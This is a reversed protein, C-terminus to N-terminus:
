GPPSVNTGHNWITNRCQFISHVGWPLIQEQNASKVIGRNLFTRQDAGERVGPVSSLCLPFHPRGGAIYFKPTALFASLDFFLFGVLDDDGALMRISAVVDGLMPHSKRRRM